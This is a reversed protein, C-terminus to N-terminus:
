FPYSASLITFNIGDNPKKISGNSFHQLKIKLDLANKFVYGIAVHDGFQFRTSLQRGANDYLDSLLHVGIGAEAYLGKLSDHQWRFVPTLGISTIAQSRGPLGQFQSGRWKALNADWYGGIHNGNSRWWQTDWKWQVGLRALKIANSGGVEVSTSDFALAAPQSSALVMLASFICIHKEKM